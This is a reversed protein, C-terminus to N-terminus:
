QLIETEVAVMMQQVEPGEQQRGRRPTSMWFLLLCALCRCRERVWQLGAQYDWGHRNAFVLLMILLLLLLLSTATSTWTGMSMSTAVAQNAKADHGKSAASSSAEGSASTDASTAANVHSGSPQSSPLTADYACRFGITAAREYADAMLVYKAHRDLRLAGGPHAEDAYPAGFYWNAFDSAAQPQYRSGGRLLVFRTHEDAFESSTYQWVNGVLDILGLPNTGARLEESDAPAPTRGSTTPTPRLDPRDHPGWPFINSADGAQAAYQWELTSPLRGGAWACFSRAELLSVGTVPTTGNGSPYRASRWDPWERLFNRDDAPAYRTARLFTAYRAMSVPARDLYFAPVSTQEAEHFNRPYAEGPLQVDIGFTHRLTTGFPEIVLGQCRFHFTTSAPIWIAAAKPEDVGEASFGEAVPASTHAPPAPLSSRVAAQLAMSWVDSITALPTSTLEAQLALLEDLGELRRGDRFAPAALVGGYGYAEMQFALVLKGSAGDVHRPYLLRGHYIDYFRCGAFSAADLELMASSGGWEKGLREVLTWATQQMCPVRITSGVKSDLGTVFKSAFVSGHQVTPTHPEWGDALLGAAGLYHMLPQL